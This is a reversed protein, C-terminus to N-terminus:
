KKRRNSNGKSSYEYRYSYYGNKNTNYVDPIIGMVPYDFREEIEKEDQVTDDVFFSIIFSIVFILVGITAGIIAIRARNPGYRRQSFHSEDIIRMASGEVIREVYTPATKAIARDLNYALEPSTAVVSVRIIETGEVQSTLIMKKMTSYDMELDILDAAADLITRSVIIESYTKVLRQSAVLDADTLGDDHTSNNKSNNVYATFASEYTPKIFFTAYGYAASGFIIGALLIIWLRGLLHKFLSLIDIEQVSSSIKSSKETNKM